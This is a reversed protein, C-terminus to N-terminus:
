YAAVPDLNNMDAGYLQGEIAGGNEPKENMYVWTDPAFFSLNSAGKDKKSNVEEVILDKKPTLKKYNVFFNDYVDGIKTCTADPNMPGDMHISKPQNFDYTMRTKEQVMTDKSCTSKERSGWIPKGNKDLKEIYTSPYWTNLNVGHEQENLFQKDVPRITYNFKMEKPKRTSPPDAFENMIYPDKLYIKDTDVFSETTNKSSSKNQKICYHLVVLIAFLVISTIMESM